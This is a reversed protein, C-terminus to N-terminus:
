SGTRGRAPAPAPAPPVEAAAVAMAEFFEAQKLTNFAGHDFEYKAIELLEAVKTENMTKANLRGFSVVLLFVLLLFVM